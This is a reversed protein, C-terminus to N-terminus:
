TVIQWANAGNLLFAFGEVLVLRRERKASRANGSIGPVSRVPLPNIM